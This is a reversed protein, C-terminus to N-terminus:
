KYNGQVVNTRSHIEEKSCINLQEFIAQEKEM